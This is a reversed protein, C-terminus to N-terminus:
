SDRLSAILKDPARFQGRKLTPPVMAEITELNEKPNARLYVETTQINAHGLWLAVKRLDGTAQLVIMASTHRLVHPTVRKKRLSTCVEMAAQVHKRLVYEFGFRTMPGNGANLFLEPTPADGRVTFWARLDTATENWLPLSREKRGKGNIHITPTPHLDLATLPLSVLESVRLGAAFCLHLMARDRIGDRKRVDPANLIAQM